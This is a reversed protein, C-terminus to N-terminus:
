ARKRNRRSFLNRRALTWAALVIGVPPILWSLLWRAQGTEKNMKNIFAIVQEELEARSGSNDIVTDAYEVKTAIPLQSNLRASADEHTSGDRLMLRQLQIEASCYVVVVLGVFKWLPGEILLPVDLVCWKEGRLWHGMVQWLM